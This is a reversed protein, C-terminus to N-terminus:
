PSPITTLLELNPQASKVDRTVIYTMYRDIGLETDLMFDILTQFASLSQTVVTMIYDTGGGTAICDVIEDQKEVFQEFRSFDTKRHKDLSVTVIVKTFDTIKNLDIKAHYSKILGAEKLKNLRAWCPTPSLNIIEALQTKSLRGHQQVASLIRIDATDLVLNKM